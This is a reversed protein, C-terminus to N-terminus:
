FGVTDVFILFEPSGIPCPVYKINYPDIRKYCEGTSTSLRINNKYMVSRTTTPHITKFKPNNNELQHYHCENIIFVAILFLVPSSWILREINKHIKM